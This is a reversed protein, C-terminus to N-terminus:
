GGKERDRDRRQAKANQYMTAAVDLAFVGTAAAVGAFVSRTMGVLGAVTAAYGAAKPSYTAVHDSPEGWARSRGEAGNRANGRSAPPKAAGGQATRRRRVPLKVAHKGRNGRAPGGAEGRLALLRDLAKRAQQETEALTHAAGTLDDHLQALTDVDAPLGFAAAADLADSTAEMAQGAASRGADLRGSLHELASIADDLASVAHESGRPPGDPAFNRCRTGHRRSATM